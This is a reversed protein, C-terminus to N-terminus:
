QIWITFVESALSQSMFIEGNVSSAKAMEFDDLNSLSILASRRVGGVVVVEGIKCMIDHAEISKLRRGRASRFIDVTFRFLESLPDPGSARGGFIKLRAGAPRVKSMDWNPIQGTVLLGILEKYAKAWGLKSDEVVITTNTDFFEDAIVPLNEIHKQEVSFGVGTGNMLIYMAEDFARLSDVAIFSCNYAAINDRELAPGATMLARMSPMIKHNLVADHIQSFIINDENYNYNKVLHSKMFSVYRDVTETWTERRNEEELWRAYRSIHIFNKYPDIISGNDDVFSMLVM